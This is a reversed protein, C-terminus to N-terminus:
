RGIDKADAHLFRRGGDEAVKYVDKASDKRVKWGQPFENVNGKSFDEVVVCDGQASLSVVSGGLCLVIGIPLLLPFRLTVLSALRSSNM